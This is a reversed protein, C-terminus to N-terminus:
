TRLALESGVGILLADARDHEAAHVRGTAGRARLVVWAFFALDGQAGATVHRPRGRWAPEDLYPDLTASNMALMEVNAAADLPGPHVDGRETELRERQDVMPDIVQGSAFGEHRGLGVRQHPLLEHRPLSARE